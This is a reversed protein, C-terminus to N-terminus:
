RVEEGASTWSRPGAVMRTGSLWPLAQGAWVWIKFENEKQERKLREGQMESWSFTGTVAAVAEHVAM